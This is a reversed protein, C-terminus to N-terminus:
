GEEDFGAMIKLKELQNIDNKVENYEPPEWSMFPIFSPYKELLENHREFEKNYFAAVVEDWEEKSFAPHKSHRKRERISYQEDKGNNNLLIIIIVILLIVIITEM